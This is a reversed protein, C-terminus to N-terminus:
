GRHNFGKLIKIFNKTLLALSEDDLDEVVSKTEIEVTFAASKGKRSSGLNDDALVQLEYTHLSGM